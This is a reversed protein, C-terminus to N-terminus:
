VALRDLEDLLRQRAELDDARTSPICADGNSLFSIKTMTDPRRTFTKVAQDHTQGSAVYHWRDPEDPRTFRYFQPARIDIQNMTEKVRWQGFADGSNSPLGGSADVIIGDTDVHVVWAHDGTLGELLTQTRVRATVEAAVHIGWKHPLTRAPLDVPFAQLGADDAWWVEGRDDGSMSFQGWTSNAIAKALKDAGHPLSRGERALDWWPGFLDFTSRPAYCTEVKVDCGLRKAADLEVWTWTGSMEGWPFQIANKAIRVPLPYHALTIPVKVTADALGPVTPDLDTSTSVKRLSTAIPRSAMATPYAAKIDLSRVNRYRDPQWIEQRGGFFARSSVEPDFGVTVTNSLSARLLKWAMSSVSSPAIGYQRVWDLATTLALFPDDADALGNRLSTVRVGTPVHTIGVDRGRWTSLVWERASTVHRLSQLGGNVYCTFDTLRTLANTVDRRGKFAQKGWATEVYLERQGPTLLAHPRPKYKDLPEVKM